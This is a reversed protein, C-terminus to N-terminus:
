SAIARIRGLDRLLWAVVIFAAVYMVGCAAFLPAFSGAASIRGIAQQSLFGALGGLAGGLGTITGVVRGPFVEAPLTINGWLAHSFMLATVLAVATAPSSVRPISLCLVPIVCSASLMTMKRARNLSVGRAVLARPIAGSAISGVALAVFPIWGWTGTQKLDFGREDQLYKPIWFYMFYSIPDTLVRALACGWTERMGLLKLLSPRPQDSGATPQNDRGALIWEKEESSLRPHDAPLRYFAAWLGACVLGLAGTVVFASQWGFKLAVFSVLPVSIASGLAVGANVVGVALARERPPFWESSAKVCTPFNGAETAGLLFRFMSLQAATRAFAHLLNAGSWALVSILMGLRTGVTDIIRGSVLYMITYSLLFARTVKAYEVNSMGLDKQITSALVSLTQRDLYNLATALCMLGAIIWRLNRIPRLKTIM